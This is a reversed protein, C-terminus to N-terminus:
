LKKGDRWLPLIAIIGDKKKNHWEFKFLGIFEAVKFPM